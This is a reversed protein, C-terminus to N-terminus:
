QTNSSKRRNKYWSQDGYLADACEQCIGHSFRAESHSEIYADIQNWYGKDDRIKKCKSCIPLLGSLTKVNALADELQVNKEELRANQEELTQQLMRLTVHTHVRALVEEAQFPKTIYDVGGASFAKVKDLVDDLASLFIVPIDRTHEDAKLQECVEYGSMGPMVIDLLILDPPNKRISKVALTGNIATRVECGHNTLISALVSLNEPNDDVLQINGKM